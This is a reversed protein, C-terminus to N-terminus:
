RLQKTSDTEYNHTGGKDNAYLGSIPCTTLWLGRYKTRANLKGGKLSWKQSSRMRSAVPLIEDIQMAIIITCRSKPPVNRPIKLAMSESLGKQGQLM